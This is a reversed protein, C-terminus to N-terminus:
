WEQKEKVSKVLSGQWKMVKDEPEEIQLRNIEELVIIRTNIDPHTSFWANPNFNNILLPKHKEDVFFGISSDLKIKKLASIMASPNKTMEVAGADAVFEKKQSIMIRAFAAGINGIKFILYILLMVGDNRSRTLRMRRGKVRSINFIEAISALMHTIVGILFMLRTDRNIIHTLEHALVCEIEDKDLNRILGSTVAVYYTHDTMGSTYANLAEDEKIFLHPTVLGRSICLNEFMPYLDPHTKRNAPILGAELNLVNRNRIYSVLMVVFAILYPIYWYEVAIDKVKAYQLSASQQIDVSHSNSASFVLIAWIFLFYVIGLIAPYALLFIATKINNNWIHTKLGIARVLM